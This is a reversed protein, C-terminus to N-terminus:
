AWYMSPLSYRVPLSAGRRHPLPATWQSVRDASCSLWYACYRRSGSPPFGDERQSAPPSEAAGDCSGPTGPCGTGLDAGATNLDISLPQLLELFLADGQTVLRIVMLLLPGIQGHLLRLVPDCFLSYFGKRASPLFSSFSFIWICNTQHVGVSASRPPHTGHAPCRDPGRMRPPAGCSKGVMVRPLRM